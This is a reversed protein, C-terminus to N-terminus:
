ASGAGLGVLRQERVRAAALATGALAVQIGALALGSWMGVEAWTWGSGRHAAHGPRGQSATLVLLHVFLMGAYMLGTVRWVRLDPHRWLARVCPLCAAAMAIFAAASLAGGHGDGVAAAAAAAAHLGVCV